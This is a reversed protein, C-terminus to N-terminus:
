KRLGENLISSCWGAYYCLEWKRAAESRAGNELKIPHQVGDTVVIVSINESTFM